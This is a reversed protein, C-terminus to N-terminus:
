IYYKLILKIIRIKFHSNKWGFIERNLIDNIFIKM